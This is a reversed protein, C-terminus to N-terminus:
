RGVIRYKQFKLKEKKLDYGSIGADARAFYFLIKAGYTIGYDCFTVLYREELM